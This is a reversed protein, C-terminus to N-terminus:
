GPAPVEIDLDFFAIMSVRVAFGISDVSAIGFKRSKKGWGVFLGALLAAVALV